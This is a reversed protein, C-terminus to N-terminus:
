CKWILLFCGCDKWKIKHIEETLNGALNSISTAMFRISDIFKIKYSITEVTKNGEKDIQTIEKKIPVSLLKCKENNEGICEFQGESENALEKIIFHYDYKSGNHFVVPIENLVNFKLNCISHPADRYKGTYNWHDRVKWLNINEALKKIFYKGCVYCVRADEHIKLEENTLPIMKKKEFDIINKAHERLSTCFNKM